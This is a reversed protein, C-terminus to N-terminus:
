TLHLSRCDGRVELAHHSTMLAMGGNALHIELLERVLAIGRVDLATFPEDLIWLPVPNILLRCLATRQKQGASLGRAPVDEFGRLGVRALADEIRADDVMRDRLAASVKLNEVPSLEAKLGPAHGMYVMAAFYTTRNRQIDLGRWRVEGDAPRSLGALVRLLSTKGAGNAGEVQLLQGPSLTLNLGSFLLRDGRICELGEARLPADSM